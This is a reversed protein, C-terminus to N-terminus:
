PAKEPVGAEVPRDNVRRATQEAADTSPPGNMDSLEYRM